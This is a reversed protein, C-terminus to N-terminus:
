RSSDKAVMERYAAPTSGLRQKFVRTLHAQDSFGAHTAVDAPTMGRVLLDRACDVRMSLLHQSPTISFERKYARILAYESIGERRAFEDISVPDTIRGRLHAYLRLAAGRNRGQFRAPMEDGAWVGIGDRLACTAARADEECKADVIARAFAVFAERAAADKLVPGALPTSDFAKKPLAFSEYAFLEEGSQVCGHVDGPNFVIVDGPALAYVVGNCELTREGQRVLGIVYHSHSHSAFPQLFGEYSRREGDIFCLPEVICAPRADRAQTVNGQGEKMM